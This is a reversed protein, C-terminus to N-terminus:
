AREEQAGTVRLVRPLYRRLDVHPDNRYVFYV